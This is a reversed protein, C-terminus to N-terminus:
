KRITVQTAGFGYQQFSADQTLCNPYDRRIEDLIAKRLVGEGKGHIFVIKQGSCTSYAQMAKHFAELQYQLIAGNDMGTTKDVLKGIHLDVEIVDGRLVGPLASKEVPANPNGKATNLKGKMSGKLQQSRDQEQRKQSLHAESGYQLKLVQLQLQEIQSKLQQNEAQLQRIIEQQQEYESLIRAQQQQRQTLPAEHPRVHGAARADDEDSVVVCQSAQTPIEFGDEDEVMVLGNKEFRKVIGGGMADLFRVKDGIQIM